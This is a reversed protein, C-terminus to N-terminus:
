DAGNGHPRTVMGGSRAMAADGSNMLNIEQPPAIRTPLESPQRVSRM